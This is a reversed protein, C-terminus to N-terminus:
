YLYGCNLEIVTGTTMNMVESNFMDLIYSSVQEVSLIGFPQKALTREWLNESSLCLENFMETNVGALSIGMISFNREILENALYRISHELAIKSSAYVSQRRGKRSTVISSLAIIKCQDEAYEQSALYKMISMFSFYNVNFTEIMKNIDLNKIEMLPALGACHIFFSIKINKESIIKFVNDLTDLKNLDMEVYFSENDFSSLMAQMENVHRALVILRYKKSEILKKLICNGIGKTAGTILVWKKEM